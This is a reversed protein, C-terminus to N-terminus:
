RPYPDLKALVQDLVEYPFRFHAANAPLLVIGEDPAPAEYRPAREDQLPQATAPTPAKYPTPPEDHSPAAPPTPPPAQPPSVRAATEPPAYENLLGDLEAGRKRQVTPPAIARALNDKIAARSKKSM